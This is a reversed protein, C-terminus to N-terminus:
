LRRLQIINLEDIYRKTMSSDCNKQNATELYIDFLNLADDSNECSSFDYGEFMMIIITRFISQHCELQLMTDVNVNKEVCLMIDRMDMTMNKRHAFADVYDELSPDRLLGVRIDKMTGHDYDPNAYVEVNIGLRIGDLIDARQELYFRDGWETNMRQEITLNNSLKM